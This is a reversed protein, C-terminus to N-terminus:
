CSVSPEWSQRLFTTIYNIESIDGSPVSHKTIGHPCIPIKLLFSLSVTFVARHILTSLPAASIAWHKLASAARGCSGSSMHCCVVMRLELELPLSARKQVGLAGPVWTTCTFISVYMLNVLAPLSPSFLASLSLLLFVGGGASEPKAGLVWMTAWLMWYNWNWITQGGTGAHPACTHTGVFYGGM